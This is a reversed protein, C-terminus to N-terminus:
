VVRQFNMWGNAGEKTIKRELSLIANCAFELIYIRSNALNGYKRRSKDGRGLREFAVGIDTLCHLKDSNWKILGTASQWVFHLERERKKSFCKEGHGERLISAYIVRHLKWPTGEGRGLM